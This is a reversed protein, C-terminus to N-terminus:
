PSASAVSNTAPRDSPGSTSRLTSPTESADPTTRVQPSPSVWAFVSTLEPVTHLPETTITSGTENLRRLTSWTPSIQTDPGFTAAPYQCCGEAVSCVNLARTAPMASPGNRRVPSRPNM